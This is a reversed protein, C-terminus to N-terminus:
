ETRLSKAPNQLAAGITKTGITAIAIVLVIGGAFLFTLVSLDIRYVYGQLWQFSFWWALPAAILFAIGVLKLFEKGLLITITAVSAGVVKRIGIEKRRQNVVLLSMAFLGVCSLIVALISGSGIMKTMLREKILTRDINEDLFSGLFEANPEIKAWAREIRDMSQLPNSGSVKVYVNRMNWKPNLFLTLPAITKDFGQFNFDKVVGIVSYRVTDNLIIHARLPDKEQLADAMAQNIVLGLSDSKHDRSFSRGKLLQLDLTETYDHDVILINTTVGRGKYDFGMASTSSTGDKGLGLINNSATINVIGPTNALENRLLQMAQADERKGNLPFAIVQEKNFGVDKSRMYELQDWLIMTGSILLITIGFQVILLGDRLRNKGSAEMKGKLSQLIGLKTMFLAPYGGAILTIVVVGTFFAFITLPGMVNTFSAATRFVTQFQGCLLHALGIGMLVALSYILVSEGWFQFFLQFKNAGLTKRMGIERLRGSSKAISMNIFNASAIFLILFAIGLVLYPYLRSTRATGNKETAFHIDKYPLLRQQIYQGNTDPLVGDRKLDNIFKERHLATFSRTAKEFQSPKVGESLKLYVRHNSKEWNTLNDAYVFDSQNKFNLALHFRMTSQTPIDELISSITYPRQRGQQLINVTKGLANEEGFLTKATKQTIVISSEDEVLHQENGKIVPFSFISFFDPDVYAAEMRLQKDGYTVLVNGGNYKTIKEVGPVEKQLALAFPIPKATSVEPGDPSQATTYVNYIRDINEHFRDYSLEFLAYISLLIAVTFAVTLGLMNLGTFTKDKWLNRLAIKLYNKIM